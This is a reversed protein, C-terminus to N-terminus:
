LTTMWIIPEVHSETIETGIHHNIGNGESFHAQKDIIRPWLSAKRGYCQVSKSDSM